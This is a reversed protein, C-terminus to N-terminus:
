AWPTKPFFGRLTLSGQEIRDPLEATQMSVIPDNLQVQWFPNSDTDPPIVQSSIFSHESAPVHGSFLEQEFVTPEKLQSHLLPNESSLAM